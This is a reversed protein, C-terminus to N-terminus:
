PPESGYLLNQTFAYRGASSWSTEAHNTSTPPAMQAPRVHRMRAKELRVQLNTFGM